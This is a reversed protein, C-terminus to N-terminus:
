NEEFESVEGSVDTSSDTTDLSGFFLLCKSLRPLIRNPNLFVEVDGYLRDRGAGKVERREASVAQM